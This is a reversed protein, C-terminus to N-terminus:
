IGEYSLSSNLTWTTHYKKYLNPTLCKSKLAKKVAKLVSSRVEICIKLFHSIAFNKAAMQNLLESCSNFNVIHNQILIKSYRFPFLWDFSVSPGLKIQLHIHNNLKNKNKIEYIKFQPDSHNIISKRLKEWSKETEMVDRFTLSEM